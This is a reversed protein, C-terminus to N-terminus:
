GTRKNNRNGAPADPTKKIKYRQATRTCWVVRAVFNDYRNDLFLNATGRYLAIFNPIVNHFVFMLM